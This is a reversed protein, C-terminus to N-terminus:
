TCYSTVCHLVISLNLVSFYHLMNNKSSHATSKFSESQLEGKDFCNIELYPQTETVKFHKHSSQLIM